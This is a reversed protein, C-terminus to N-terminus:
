ERTEPRITAPAKGETLGRNTWYNRQDTAAARSERAIRLHERRAPPAYREDRVSDPADWPQAARRDRNPEGLSRAYLDPLPASAPRLRDNAFRALARVEDASLVPRASCLFKVLGWGDVISVGLPSRGFFPRNARHVCLIPRVTLRRGQLEGALAVTVAAAERKAAGVTKWTGRYGHVYVDNGRVRLRGSYSETEVVAVGPPGIVIHDISASSGRILRDHLIVFGKVKLQELAQATLAEGNAGTAWNRPSAPLVGVVVVVVVFFAMTGLMAGQMLFGAVGAVAGVACGALLWPRHSRLRNQHEKHQREFEARASGGAAAVDDSGFIDVTESGRMARAPRTPLCGGVVSFTSLESPV